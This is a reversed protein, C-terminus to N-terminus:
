EKHEKILIESNTVLRNIWANLQQQRKHMAILNIIMEKPPLAETSTEGDIKDVRIAFWENGTDFVAKTNGPLLGAVVPQLTSSLNDFLETIQSSNAWDIEPNSSRERGQAKSFTITKGFTNLFTDIEEQTVEDNISQHQRDILIKVLSEEYYNKIAEKFAKEKHINQKKAEQLLVQKIAVSQLFDQEDSHHSPLHRQSENIMEETISQNNVTMVIENEPPAKDPWLIFFTGCSLTIVILLITLLYNM